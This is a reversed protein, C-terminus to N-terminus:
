LSAGSDPPFIDQVPTKLVKALLRKEQETPEDYGNEINSVRTQTIRKKTKEEIQEQTIRQEARVVRLRNVTKM